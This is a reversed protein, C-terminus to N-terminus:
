IGPTPPPPDIGEVTFEIFESQSARGSRDRVRLSITYSQPAQIGSADPRNVNAPVQWTANFSADLYCDALGPCPLATDPNAVQMPLEIPEGGAPLIQLQVDRARVGDGDSVAASVYIEGGTAPLVRPNVQFSSIHPPRPEVVSLPVTASAQGSYAIIQGSGVSEATFVGDHTIQGVGGRVVWTPSINAIQAGTAGMVRSRYGVRGNLDLTINAPDIQISHPAAAAIPLVAFNVTTTEGAVLPVLARATGYTESHPTRVEVWTEGAALNHMTFVGGSGSRASQQTGMIVIEAEALGVATNDAAVVKGTLTAMDPSPPPASDGSGSCGASILAVAITLGALLGLATRCRM